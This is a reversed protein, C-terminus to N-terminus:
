ASDLRKSKEPNPDFPKLFNKRFISAALVPTFAPVFSPRSSLTYMVKMKMIILNGEM